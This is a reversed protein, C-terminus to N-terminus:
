WCHTCRRKIARRWSSKIGNIAHEVSALEAIAPSLATPAGLTNNKRFNQYKDWQPKIAPDQIAKALKERSLQKIEQLTALEESDLTLTRGFSAPKTLKMLLREIIHEDLPKRAAPSEPQPMAGTSDDVDGTPSPAVPKAPNKSVWQYEGLAAIARQIYADIRKQLEAAWKDLIDNLKIPPMSTTDAELQLVAQKLMRYEVLSLNYDEVSENAKRGLEGFRNTWYYPNNPNYKGRWLNSWWNKVSDWWGRKYHNDSGPILEKRLQGMLAQVEQPIVTRLEELEQRVQTLINQINAGDAPAASPAVEAPKAAEEAAENKTRKLYTRFELM